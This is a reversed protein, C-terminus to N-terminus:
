TEGQSFDMRNYATHSTGHCHPPTVVLKATAKLALAAYTTFISYVNHPHVVDAWRATDTPLKELQNRKKPIHYTGSPAWTPWRIVHVGNIEEELPKDAKTDGTVVTTEHGLAAFREATSKVVYEVGGVDPYYRPTVLLIM